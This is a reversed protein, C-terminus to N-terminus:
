LIKIKSGSSVGIPSWSIKGSGSSSLSTKSVTCASLWSTNSSSRVILGSIGRPWGVSCFGCIGSVNKVLSMLDFNGIAKIAIMTYKKNAVLLSNRNPKLTKEVNIKQSTRSNKNWRDENEFWDFVLRFRINMKPPIGWLVECVSSLIRPIKLLTKFSTATKINVKMKTWRRQLKQITPSFKLTIKSLSKLSNMLSSSHFNGDVKIKSSKMLIM